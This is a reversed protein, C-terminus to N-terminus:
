ESTSAMFKGNKDPSSDRIAPKRKLYRPKRNYSPAKTDGVLGEAAGADRFEREKVVTSM